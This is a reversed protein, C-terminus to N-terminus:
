GDHVPSIGVVASGADMVSAVTVIVRDGVRLIPSGEPPSGFSVDGVGAYYADREATGPDPTIAFCGPISGSQHSCVGVVTGTYTYVQAPSDSGAVYGISGAGAFLLALIVVRLPKGFSTRTCTLATSM